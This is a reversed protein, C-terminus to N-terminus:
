RATPICENCMRLFTEAEELKPFEVFMHQTTEDVCFGRSFLPDDNLLAWNERTNDATVVYLDGQAKIRKM